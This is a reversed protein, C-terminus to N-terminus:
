FKLKINQLRSNAQYWYKCVYDVPAPFSLDLNHDPLLSAVDSGVISSSPKIPLESGTRASFRDMLHAALQSEIVSM